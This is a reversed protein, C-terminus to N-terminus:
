PCFTLLLPPCLERGKDDELLHSVAHSQVEVNKNATRTWSCGLLVMVRQPIAWRRGWGSESTHLETDDM